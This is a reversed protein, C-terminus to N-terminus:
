LCRLWWSLSFAGFFSAVINSGTLSESVSFVELVTGGSLEHYQSLFLHIALAYFLARLGCASKQEKCVLAANLLSCRLGGYRFWQETFVLSM